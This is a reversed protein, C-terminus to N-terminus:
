TSPQASLRIPCRLRVTGNVMGHRSVRSEARRVVRQLEPATIAEGDLVCALQCDIREVVLRAVSLLGVSVPRGAPILPEIERHLEHISRRILRATERHRRDARRRM